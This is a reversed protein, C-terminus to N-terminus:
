DHSALGCFPIQWEEFSGALVYQSLVLCAATKSCLYNTLQCKDPCGFYTKSQFSVLFFSSLQRVTDLAAELHGRARDLHRQVPDQEQIGGLRMLFQSNELSSENELSFFFDSLARLVVQGAFERQGTDRFEGIRPEGAKTLGMRAGNAHLSVIHLM